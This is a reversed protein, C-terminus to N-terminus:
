QPALFPTRGAQTKLFHEVAKELTKQPETYLYDNLLYGGATKRFKVRRGDIFLQEQGAVEKIQVQFGEIKKSNDAKEPAKKRSKKKEM